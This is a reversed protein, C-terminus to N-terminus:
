RSLWDLRHAATDFTLDYNFDHSRAEDTHGHIAVAIQTKSLWRGCTVYFHGQLESDPPRKPSKSILRLLSVGNVGRTTLEISLCDAVNSGVHDTVYLRDGAPSWEVDASRGFTDLLFVRGRADKLKLLFEHDGDPGVGPDVYYLRADDTPSKLSTVTGPFTTQAAGARQALGLLFTAVILRSIKV